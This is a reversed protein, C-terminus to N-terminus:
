GGEGVVFQHYPWGEWEWKPPHYKNKLWIKQTVFFDNDPHDEEYVVFSTNCGVGNALIVVINACDNCNMKQAWPNALFGTLDFTQEGEYPDTEAETYSAQTTYGASKAWVGDVVGDLAAARTTAGRAFPIAGYGVCAIELVGLWVGDKGEHMPARPTSVVTYVTHTTPNNQCSIPLNSGTTVKYEWNLEFNNDYKHVENIVRGSADWTSTTTLADTDWTYWSASNWPFTVTGTARVMVTKGGTLTTSDRFRVNALTVREGKQQCAPGNKSASRDFELGITAPTAATNDYIDYNRIGCFDLQECWPIVITVNYSDGEPETEYDDAVYDNNEPAYHDDAKVTLTDTGALDCAIYVVETGINNNDKFNLSSGHWWHTVSDRVPEGTEYDCDIDTVTTCTVTHDSGALWVEDDDDPFTMEVQDFFPDAVPEARLPRACHALAWAVLVATVAIRILPEALHGQTRTV